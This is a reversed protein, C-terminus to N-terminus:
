CVFRKKPERHFCTRAVNVGVNLAAFIRRIDATMDTATSVRTSMMPFNASLDSSAFKQLRKWPNVRSTMPINKNRILRRFVLHCKNFSLYPCLFLCVCLSMSVYLYMCVSLSVSFVSFVFLCLSLFIILVVWARIRPLTTLVSPALSQPNSDQRWISSPIVNNSNCKLFHFRFSFDCFFILLQFMSSFGQFNLDAVFHTSLQFQM